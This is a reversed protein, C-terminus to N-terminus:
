VNECEVELGNKKALWLPVVLGGGGEALKTRSKPLWVLRGDWVIQLAKPTTKRITVGRLVVTKVEKSDPVVVITKPEAETPLTPISVTPDLLDELQRWHHTAIYRGLEEASTLGYNTVQRAFIRDAAPHSLSKPQWKKQGTRTQIGTVLEYLRTGTKGYCASFGVGNHHHTHQSQLEDRTQNEGLIIIAADVYRPDVLVSKIAAKTPDM